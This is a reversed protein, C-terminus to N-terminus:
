DEKVSDVVATLSGQALRIDLKDGKKVQRASKIVESEKTVISYGREVVKLPSLSDLIGILRGMRAKKKEIAFLLAKESRSSLYELEKKRREILDQPSGLKEGLLEVKHSRVSILRSMALELRTLLDDNRLELDQLRRQPDVLRKSLGLMKERLYKMKKEFTLYLMREASKVKNALESTSKAVLEAAASPTPARLDAVFDAITFDIEHGVASVIPIPSAAIQRALAEDNFCWMDEISGGGRGVIIVDVEPLGIAKRLAERIQPAAAEGQVITPVVTVQITKARRSLVNMIDRIAAGTPSTVIAIHRPFTPLPRKRSAEFLGESKLKTKLQEFAKQLAGAGVPEMMECMLQYNGRPEYVTIRGRVIVEMGDTPKFKLRSNNGRFMVATIQSKSDKLSFYFHGSTHAKFNSLEGRVWVQGVQGELLQKIYVNLQEVSLVSPENAKEALATEGLTMQASFDSKRLPQNPTDSM